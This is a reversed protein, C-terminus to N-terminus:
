KSLIIELRVFDFINIFLLEASQNVFLFQCTHTFEGIMNLFMISNRFRLLFQCTHTFEGIM